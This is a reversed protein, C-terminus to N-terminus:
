GARSPRLNDGLGGPKRWDAGGGQPRAPRPARQEHVDRGEGRVVGGASGRGGAAGDRASVPRARGSFGAQPVRAGGPESEPREAAPERGCHVDRQDRRHHRRGDRHRAYGPHPAPSRREVGRRVETHRRPVDSLGAARQAPLRFRRMGARQEARAAAVGGRGAQGASGVGAGFELLSHANATGMIHQTIGMGWILCSGSFPPKAYIRAARAIDEGAVGTVKEAYELDYKGSIEWWDDYGDTRASVFEADALGEDVIVKAMANLLAVDTGPRPRLWLEAYDCMEIRRPNIVILKAGREVVARRLGLRRWRTIRTPTRARNDGPLGGRRLRYVLQFDRRQRAVVADGGGFALPVAAHLPRYPQQGHHPPAFKQQIYGDENSAKASALTAFADDRHEALQEAVYDLAEDWSAPELEGDRRILPTTIRDPHNVFTLGFRGKVCLMGLSSQNDPDDLVEIIRDNADIKTQVGCGVGCYPCTTKVTRAADPPAAKVRIAGTPCSALCSGCTTCVSDVLPMDMFTGIRAEDGRGLVDIAGIFQHGDQCAQACRGCMICSDMAIDFVPNSDDVAQRERGKWAPADVGHHRAAVSLERYDHSEDGNEPFMGMTLELVGRRIEVAEPDEVNVDMGDAAPTSCSAPFGRVGDIKVLCTRCAGIPKMDPDKCLQPIYTGSMNVADLM